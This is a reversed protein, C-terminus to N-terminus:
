VGRSWDTADRGRNRRAIETLQSRKHLYQEFAKPTGAQIIARLGHRRHIVFMDYINGNYSKVSASVKCIYM